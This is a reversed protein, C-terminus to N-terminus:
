SVVRIGCFKAEADFVYLIEFINQGVLLQDIHLNFNILCVFLQAVHFKELSLSCDVLKPVVSSNLM